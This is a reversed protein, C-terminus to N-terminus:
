AEMLASEHRRGWWVGMGLGALTGLVAALTKFAVATEVSLDDFGAVPLFWQMISGVTTMALVTTLIVGIAIVPVGVRGLRAVKFQKPTLRGLRVDGRVQGDSSLFMFFYVIGFVIGFDWAVLSSSIVEVQEPGELVWEFQKLGIGMNILGQLAAWPLLHELVFYAGFGPVAGASREELARVFSVQDRPLIVSILATTGLLLPVFVIADIMLLRFTEVGTLPLLAWVALSIAIGAPLAPPGLRRWPNFVGDPERGAPDGMVWRGRFFDRRTNVVAGHCQIVVFCLLFLLAFARVEILTGSGPGFLGFVIWALFGVVVVVGILNSFFQVAMYQKQDPKPKEAKAQDSM